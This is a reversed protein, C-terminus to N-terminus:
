LISDSNAKGPQCVRAARQARESYCIAETEWIEGDAGLTEQPARETLCADVLDQVMM